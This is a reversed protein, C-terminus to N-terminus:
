KAGRKEPDYKQFFNLWIIRSVRYYVPILIITLSVYATMLMWGEIYQELLVFYAVIFTVFMAINLMYSVYMAGYFFGMEREYRLGCHSCNSHMATMKNYPNRTEFVEGEQCRPCKMGVISYLKSGKGFM